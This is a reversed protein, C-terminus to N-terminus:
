RRRNNERVDGFTLVEGALADGVFGIAGDRFAIEEDFAARPNVLPTLDDNIM